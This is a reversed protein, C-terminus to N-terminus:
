GDWGPTIFSAIKACAPIKEPGVISSYCQHARPRHAWPGHTAHSAMQGSQNTKEPNPPSGGSGGSIVEMLPGDLTRSPWDNYMLVRPTSGFPLSASKFHSKSLLDDPACSNRM